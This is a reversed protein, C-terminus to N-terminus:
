TKGDKRWSFRWARDSASYQISGFGFRSSKDGVKGKMARSMNAKAEDSRKSGIHVLAMLAKREPLQCKETLLAKTADWHKNGTTRQNYVCGEDKIYENLVRYEEAEARNRTTMSICTHRISLICMVTLRMATYLPSTRLRDADHRHAAMRNSLYQQATSGIYIIDNVTNVLKYLKGLQYNIPM